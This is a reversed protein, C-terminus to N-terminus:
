NPDRCSGATFDLGATLAIEKGFNRALNVVKVHPDVASIDQLIELSKDQSGDNVFVIEYDLFQHQTLFTRFEEYFERLSLAENYVPVVFSVSETILGRALGHKERLLKNM